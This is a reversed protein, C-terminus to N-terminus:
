WSGGAGGGGFSGGGGGTFGGFGGFGGSGSSFNGFSGGSRGSGGSMMGLAIWFPLSSRRGTGAGYARRRSGSFIALMILMFIIGGIASGAGSSASRERYEEPSFKGNLLDIMVDTAASIGGYFDGQRFAPLIEQEVIRKAIADPVFEELGYGTAIFVDRESMDMLVILGNDTGKQGVGWEEGIMPALMSAPYGDNEDITVVFIQTSSNYQFQNLKNNLQRFETDSFVAAYDNVWNSPKSPVPLDESRVPFSFTLIILTALITNRTKMKVESHSKMQSNM